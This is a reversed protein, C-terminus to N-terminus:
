PRTIRLIKKRANCFIRPKSDELVKGDVPCEAAAAEGGSVNEALDDALEKKEEMAM